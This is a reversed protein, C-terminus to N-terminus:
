PEKKSGFKKKMGELYDQLQRKEILEKPLADEAILLPPVCLFLAVSSFLMYSNIQAASALGFVTGTLILGIMQGAAMLGFGFGYFTGRSKAPALDAWVIFSSIAVFSFGIALPIVCIFGTNSGLFGFVALSVGTIALGIITPFKRGKLDLQIGAFVAGVVFPIAWILFFTDGIHTEITPFVIGFLIGAVVYFLFFPIAYLTIQKTSPGRRTKASVKTQTPEEAIEKPKLGLALLTVLLLAGTIMIQVNASINTGFLEKLLFIQAIPIAVGISLGMIRGRDEPSTSDAFYTGWAVPSIGAAFGLLLAFIFSLNYDVIAFAFTLASATLTSAIIFVIQKRTKDVLPGSVLSTITMAALFLLTWKGKDLSLAKFTDFYSVNVPGFLPFALLWSFYIVIFIILTFLTTKRIRLKIYKSKFDTKHAPAQM